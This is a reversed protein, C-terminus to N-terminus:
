GVVPGHGASGCLRHLHDAPGLPRRGARALRLRAGSTAASLAKSEGPLALLPKVTHYRNALAARLATEGSDEDQPVLSVVTAAARPAAARPAAEEVAAWLAAVDV